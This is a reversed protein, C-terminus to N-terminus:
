ALNGNPFKNQWLHTGTVIHPKPMVIHASLRVGGWGVGPIGGSTM